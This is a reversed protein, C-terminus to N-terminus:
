ENKEEVEGVLRGLAPLVIIETTTEELFRWSSGRKLLESSLQQLSFTQFEKSWIKEYTAKLITLVHEWTALTLPMKGYATLPFKEQRLITALQVLVEDVVQRSPFIEPWGDRTELTFAAYDQYLEFSYATKEALYNEMHRAGNRLLSFLEENEKTRPLFPELMLRQYLVQNRELSQRNHALDAQFDTFNEYQNYAQPARPLFSRTLPTTSFLIEVNEESREFDQMEGEIREILYLEEMKKIARVLSKRHNYNNWDMKLTQPIILQMGRILDDMMFAAEPELDETFALGCCFLSYDMSQSFGIDGMWAELLFPRKLMQIYQPRIVLNWGFRQRLERQLFPQQRRIFNYEELQNKRILWYNETLLKLARSFDEPKM